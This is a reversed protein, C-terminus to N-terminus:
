NDNSCPNSVTGFTEKDTEKITNLPDEYNEIKLLIAIKTALIISALPVGLTCDWRGFVWAVYLFPLNVVSM